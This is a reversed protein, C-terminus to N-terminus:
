QWRVIFIEFISKYGISIRKFKFNILDWVSKLKISIMVQYKVNLIKDDYFLIFNLM